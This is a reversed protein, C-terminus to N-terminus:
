CYHVMRIVVHSVGSCVILYPPKSWSIRRNLKIDLSLKFFALLYM